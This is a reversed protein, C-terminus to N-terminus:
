PYTGGMMCIYVSENVIAPNLNLRGGVIDDYLLCLQVHMEMPTHLRTGSLAVSESDVDIRPSIVYHGMLRLETQTKMAM